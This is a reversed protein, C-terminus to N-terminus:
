VRSVIEMILREKQEHHAETDVARLTRRKQGFKQRQIKLEELQMARRLIYLSWPRLLFAFVSLGLVFKSTKPHAHNLDAIATVAGDFSHEWSFGVLVSIAGVISAIARASTDARGEARMLDDIADLGSILVFSVLSLALALLIRADISGVHMGLVDYRMWAWRASYMMCWAFCMAFTNLLVDCARALLPADDAEGDEEGLRM